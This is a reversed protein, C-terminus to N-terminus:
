PHHSHRPLEMSKHLIPIIKLTNGALIRNSIFYRSNRGIKAMHLTRLGPAAEDRANSGVHFPGGVIAQVCEVLLNKYRDRQIQGFITRTYRLIAQFDAKAPKTFRYKEVETM